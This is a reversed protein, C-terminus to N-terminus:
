CLRRETAYMIRAQQWIEPPQTFRLAALEEGWIRISLLLESNYPSNIDPRARPWARVIARWAAWEATMLDLQKPNAPAGHPEPEPEGIGLQSVNIVIKRATVILDDFIGLLDCNSVAANEESTQMGAVLRVFEEAQQANMM